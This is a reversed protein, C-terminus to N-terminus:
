IFIILAISAIFISIQILEQGEKSIKKWPIYCLLFILIYPMIYSFLYMIYMMIRQFINGLPSLLSNIVVSYEIHSTLGISISLIIILALLHKEKLKIKKLSYLTIIITIIFIIIRAITNLIDLQFITTLLHSIAILILSIPTLKLRTTNSKILFITASLLIILWLVPLTLSSLLGLTPIALQLSLTKFNIKKIIPLTITTDKDLIQEQKIFEEEDIEELEEFTGDKIEQVIDHHHNESYYSITRRLQQKTSESFGPIITQGIITVPVGTLTKNTAQAIKNLFEKNEKNNWVEYKTIKLTDFEKELEKLYQQEEECHPCGDGWFLYLNVQEKASINPTFIIFLLLIFLLYKIKKLM